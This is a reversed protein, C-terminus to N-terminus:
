LSANNMLETLQKTQDGVGLQLCAKEWEEDFLAKTIEAGPKDGLGSEKLSLPCMEADNKGAILVVPKQLPHTELQRQIKQGNFHAYWLGKVRDAPKKSKDVPRTYPIRYFRENANERKIEAVKGGAKSSAHDLIAETAINAAPAASPDGAAAGGKPAHKSKWAYYAKLRKQFEARCAQLLALDNSTNITDRLKAYSWKSLDKANDATEVGKVAADLVPEEQKLERALRIALEADRREQEAREIEEQRAKDKKRKEEEARQREEEEKQRKEEEELRKQEEIRRLREAEAAERRQRELEEAEKRRREEEARIAELRKREEEEKRKRAEEIEREIRANKFAQFQPVYKLKALFTRVLTQSVLTSNNRARMKLALRRCSVAGWIVKRWRKRILWKRVKEVIEKTLNEDGRTIQDVLAYKGSRFFVKSTGFAFDDKACGLAFMLAECFTRPDLNALIPPLYLKYMDYLSKFDTRAPFGKQMLNLVELMGGCHLQQLIDVGEFIDAAQQMNPKICRIFHSKTKELKELLEKLQRKFKEGVSVYTLKGKTSKDTSNALLKSIFKDKSNLLLDEMDPNFADNNKELFGATSYAVAGAYHRILFAEDNNLKQQSKLPSKKPSGFKIHKVLKDHLTTTFKKDNASPVKSEEDLYAFVGIKPDEIMLICDENSLYTIPDVKIGEKTYIEQEQKLVKENFYGQLKENCYNICFQEFSNVDFYEFGAIDLVGIYWSSDKFPLALNISSVVWDFLNKYLGKAVGDRAQQAESVKLSKKITTSRSGAQSMLRSTLSARFMEPEVGLLKAAVNVPADSKSADRVESGGEGAGQKDLFETNGLNLLAALLRFAGARDDATM